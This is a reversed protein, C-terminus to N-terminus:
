RHKRGPAALTAGIPEQVTREVPPEVSREVPTVGFAFYWDFNDKKTIAGADNMDTIVDFLSIGITTPNGAMGPPISELPPGFITVQQESLPPILLNQLKAYGSQDVALQQGSLNFQVLIGRGTFVRPLKNNITVVFALHDPDPTFISQEIIRVQQTPTETVPHNPSYTRTIGPGGIAERSEVRQEVFEYRVPTVTIAIQGKTQTPLTERLPTVVPEDVTVVVPQSPTVSCGFAFPTVILAFCAFQSLVHQKRVSCGM